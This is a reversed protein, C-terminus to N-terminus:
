RVKDILAGAVGLAVFIILLVIGIGGTAIGGIAFLRGTSDNRQRAKGLSVFGLVVAALSLPISLFSCCFASPLSILGTVLAAIALPETSGGSTM